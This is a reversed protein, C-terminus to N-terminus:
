AGIIRVVVKLAIELWERAEAYRGGIEEDRPEGLEELRKRAHEHNQEAARHLWFIGEDRAQEAALNPARGSALLWGLDFQSNHYGGRAAMLHWAYAQAVDSRFPGGIKDGEWFISAMCNSGSPLALSILKSMLQQLREPVAGNAAPAPEGGAEIAYARAYNEPTPELRAQALRQLAAKALQAPALTSRM